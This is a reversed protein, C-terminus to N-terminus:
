QAFQQAVVQIVIPVMQVVPFSLISILAAQPKTINMTRSVALIVAYLTWITLILEIARGLVPVVTVFTLLQPAYAFGVPCLLDRYTPPNFRLWQGAKWITFTWLYYFVIVSVIGLLLTIMLASPTARNLLSIVISAIARSLAALLVITLARRLTKREGRAAQYFRADLTLSRWVTQRLSIQRIDAQRSASQKM